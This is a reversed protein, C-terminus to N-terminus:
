STSLLVFVEIETSVRKLLGFLQIATGVRLRILTQVYTKINQSCVKSPLVNCQLVSRKQLGFLQIATGVRLSFLFLTRVTLQKTL